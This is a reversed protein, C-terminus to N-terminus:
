MIGTDVVLVRLWGRYRSPLTRERQSRRTIDSAAGEEVTSNRVTWIRARGVTM